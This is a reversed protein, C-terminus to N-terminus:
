ARGSTGFPNAASPARLWASNSACRVSMSAAYRSNPQGSALCRWSAAESAEHPAHCDGFVRAPSRARTLLGHRHNHCQRPPTPLYEVCDLRVKTSLPPGSPIAAQGFRRVCGTAALTARVAEGACVGSIARLPETIAPLAVCLRHVAAGNQERFPVESFGSSRGRCPSTVKSPNDVM